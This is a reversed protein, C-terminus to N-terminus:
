YKAINKSQNQIKKTKTKKKTARREKLPRATRRATLCFETDRHSRVREHPWTNTDTHQTRQLITFFAMVASVFYNAIAQLITTTITTTAMLRMLFALSCFVMQRCKSRDRTRHACASANAQLAVFQTCRIHFFTTHESHPSCILARRWTLLMAKLGLITMLFFFLFLSSSTAVFFAM